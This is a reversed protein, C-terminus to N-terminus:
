NNLGILGDPITLIIEKNGPDVSIILDEHLPLLIDRGDSGSVRLMLQGPNSILERIIGIHKDNESIVTFGTLDGTESGVPLDTGTSSLLVSCGSFEKVKEYSDYDEFKMRISGDAFQEIYEIFFPVPRGDIVLFVSETEPIKGSFNRDTRVTVTGEFGNIKAIKGLLITSTRAM